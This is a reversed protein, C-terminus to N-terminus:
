QDHRAQHTIEELVGIKRYVDNPRERVIGHERQGIAVPSVGQVSAKGRAVRRAFMGKPHDFSQVLIV